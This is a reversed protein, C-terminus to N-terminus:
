ICDGPNGMRQCEGVKQQTRVSGPAAVKNEKGFATADATAVFIVHQYVM